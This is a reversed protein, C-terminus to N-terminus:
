PIAAAIRQYTGALTQGFATMAGLCALALLVLLLAYEVLSAGRQAATPSVSCRSEGPDRANCAQAMPQPVM